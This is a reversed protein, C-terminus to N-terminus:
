TTYTIRAGDILDNQGITTLLSYSYLSNDVTGSTITTDETDHIATALTIATAGDSLSSRRLFWTNGTDSGFVVTGTIVAGNPLEVPCSFAQPETSDNIRASDDSSFEITNDRPNFAIGPTSWYSTIGSCATVLGDKIVLDKNYNCTGTMGLTGDGSRYNTGRITGTVDLEYSPTDDGIGVNGNNIYFVEGTSDRMRIGARDSNLFLDSHSESGFGVYGLRTPTAGYYFSLIPNATTETTETDTLSLMNGGGASSLSLLANPSATGIGVNGTNRELTMTSYWDDSNDQRDFHLNKNTADLRIMHALTTDTSRALKIAGSQGPTDSGALSIDLKADPSSTGIGVNGSSDIRMGEAAAGYKFILENTADSHIGAREGGGVTERFTYGGAVRGIGIDGDVELETGPSTTGIGVYGSTDLFLQVGFGTKARIDLDNYGSGDFGLISMSGAASNQIRIGDAKNASFFNATTGGVVELQAGPTVSNIGIYKNAGDIFFATDTTLGDNGESIYFDGGTYDVGMEFHRRADVYFRQVADGTGAQYVLLQADTATDDRAIELEAGPSDTGIGVDGEVILNNAGPDTAYYTGGLALGGSSHLRMEDSSNVGFRIATNESNYIVANESADIGVLFGDNTTSGTTTNSFMIGSSDSSDEHIHLNLQPTTIGIGWKDVSADYYLGTGGSTRGLHLDALAAGSEDYNYINFVDSGDQFFTARFTSDGFIKLGVSASNPDIIQTGILHLRESPSDTGIGVYGGLPNLVLPYSAGTAAENRSQIWAYTGTNQGFNLIASTASNGLSLAGNPLASLSAIVENGTSEISTKVIPSTTGIGVFGDSARAFISTLSNGRIFTDVDAQAQNLIINGGTVVNFRLDTSSAGITAVDTGARDLTWHTGTDSRKTELPSAPSDTGIGVNGASTIQFPANTHDASFGLAINDADNMGFYVIDNNNQIQLGSNGSNRYIRLGTGDTTEIDLAVDPSTTGIGVNGDHKFTIIDRVFSDDDELARLRFADTVGLMLYRRKDATGDTEEFELFSTATALHLKASPSATGIGVRDNSADIVLTNSDFNYTGSATDGTNLMYDSHAQSNDAIHAASNTIATDIQAHTNSGISLFNTHDLATQIVDAIIEPTGDTYTFDVTSTDNFINGVADQSAEDFDYITTSIQSGTHNARARDTSHYHLSSDGSDTLDTRQASTLHYYENSTGGQLSALNNHTITSGFKVWSSGNFVYATDESDIWVAFGESTITETWTSGNWEYIYNATVSQSTGSSTGTATNIYRDGISPGGPESTVFNVSSNVSDQWEVGQILSDVYDKTTADSGDSPTSLNYILNSNMNISGTVLNSQTRAQELTVSHPNSSNSIHSDIQTHSNTGINQIAIHDILSGINGMTVKKTTATGAVDDVIALLDDDAPTTLEPLATIKKDTM